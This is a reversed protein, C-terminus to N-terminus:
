PVMFGENSVLSSLSGVSYTVGFKSSLSGGSFMSSDHSLLSAADGNRSIATEEEIVSVLMPSRERYAIKRAFQKYADQARFWATLTPSRRFPPANFFREQPETETLM